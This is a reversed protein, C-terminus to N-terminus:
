DLWNIGLAVGVKAADPSACLALVQELSDLCTRAAKPLQEAAFVRKSLFVPVCLCLIRIHQIDHRNKQDIHAVNYIKGALLTIPDAIRVSSGSIEVSIAHKRVDDSKLGAIQRLVQVLHINRGAKLHINALVPTAGRPPARQIESETARAISEAAAMDGLIDLDKSMFPQFTELRPEEACFRDAWFNVAQGCAIVPGDPGALVSLIGEYTSFPVAESDAM